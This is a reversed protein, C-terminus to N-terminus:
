SENSFASELAREYEGLQEAWRKLMEGNTNLYYLVDDFNNYRWKLVEKFLRSAGATFTNGVKVDFRGNLKKEVAGRTLGPSDLAVEDCSSIVDIIAVAQYLAMSNNEVNKPVVDVEVDPAALSAGLDYLYLFHRLLTFQFSVWEGLAVDADLRKRAEYIQTELARCAKPLTVSLAFRTGRKSGSYEPDTAGEIERAYLAQGETEQIAPIWQVFSSAPKEDLDVIPTECPKDSELLARHLRRLFALQPDAMTGHPMTKLRKFRARLAGVGESNLCDRYNSWAMTVLDERRKKIKEQSLERERQRLIEIPTPRRSYENEEEAKLRAAEASLEHEIDLSWDILYTPAPAIPHQHRADKRLFRSIGPSSFGIKNDAASM